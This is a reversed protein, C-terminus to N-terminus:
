SRAKRRTWLTLDFEVRVDPYRRRMDLREIRLPSLRTELRRLLHAVDAYRADFRVHVPTPTIEWSTTGDLARALLRLEDADEEGDSRQTRSVQLDRVSPARLRTAVWAMMAADDDEALAGFGSLLAYRQDWTAREPESVARADRQQRSWTDLRKEHERVTARASDIRESGPGIFVLGAAFSLAVVAIVLGLNAGEFAVPRSAM